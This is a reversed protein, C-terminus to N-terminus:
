VRKKLYFKALATKYYKRYQRILTNYKSEDKYNGALFLAQNFSFPMEFGGMFFAIKKEREEALEMGTEQSEM